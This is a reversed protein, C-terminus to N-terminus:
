EKKAYTWEVKTYEEPEEDSSHDPIRVFSVRYGLLELQKKADEWDKTYKNSWFSSNLQIHTKKRYKAENEIEELVKDVEMDATPVALELAEWATLRKKNM